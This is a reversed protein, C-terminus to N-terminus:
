GRLSPPQATLERPGGKRNIEQGAEVDKALRGFWDACWEHFAIGFKMVEYKMPHPQGKAMEEQERLGAATQKHRRVMADLHPRTEKKSMEDAFFVKVLMEDRVELNQIVPDAV